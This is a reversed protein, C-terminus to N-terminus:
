YCAVKYACTTSSWPQWGRSAYLRYAQDINASADFMGAYNDTSDCGIQFLGRSGMCTPHSDGSNDNTPNGSSEANCVEIAVDVNWSYQAILNRYASCGTVEQVPASALVIDPKTEAEPEMQAKQEAKETAAARVTQVKTRQALNNVPSDHNPALGILLASLVVALAIKLM